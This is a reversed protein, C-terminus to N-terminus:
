HAHMIIPLRTTTIITLEHMIHDVRTNDFFLHDFMINNDAVVMVIIVMTLNIVYNVTIKHTLKVTIKHTLKVM